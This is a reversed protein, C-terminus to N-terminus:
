NKYKPGNKTRVSKWNPNELTIVHNEGKDLIRFNKEILSKILHYNYHKDVDHYEMFIYHVVKKIYALSPKHLLIKYEGGEIDVKLLDINQIKHKNLAAVLTNVTCNTNKKKSAALHYADNNIENTELYGKGAYDSIAVNNPYVSYTKNLAINQVLIKYNESDPEYVYIKCKDGFKRAMSISFSGIHGGLDVITPYKPLEILKTNYEYGSSVVVIEAVDETGARAFFRLDGKKIKYVVQGHILGLRDFIAIPFNSLTNILLFLKIIKDM